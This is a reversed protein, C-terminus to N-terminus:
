EQDHLTEEQEDQEHKLITDVLGELVGAVAASREEPASHGCGRLSLFDAGLSDAWRRASDLLIRRDGEGALVCTPVPLPRTWRVLEAPSWDVLISALGRARERDAWPEAYRHVAGEPIAAPDAFVRRVLMYRTLPRRFLRVLPSVARGLGRVRLADLAPPRRLDPTVPNILLVGVADVDRAAAVAIAAGHSHGVLVPRVVGLATLVVGLRRAESPLDYSADPAPDSEGRGLLDPLVFKLRHDLRGALPLFTARNASLGHLCVVAPAGDRQGRMEVVIAGESTQIRRLV